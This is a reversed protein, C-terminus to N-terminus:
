ELRKRVKVSELSSEMGNAIMAKKLEEKTPISPEENSEDTYFWLRHKNFFALEFAEKILKEEKEYVKSLIDFANLMEIHKSLTTRYWAKKVNYRFGGIKYSEKDVSGYRAYIHYVLEEFKKKKYNLEFEELETKNMVEEFVLDHKSCIKKIFKIAIEKENSAGRKAMEILKGLRDSEKVEM